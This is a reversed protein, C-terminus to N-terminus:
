TRAYVKNLSTDNFQPIEAVDFNLNPNKLRLGKLESVFGLYM